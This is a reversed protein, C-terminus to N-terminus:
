NKIIKLAIPKDLYVKAFYVGTPKNEITLQAKRNIVPYMESSILQSQMNYLAIKVEKKSTPLAIEFFGNTPNPYAIIESILDIKETFLGECEVNTKVAVLDGQSVDISMLSAQTEFVVEGNVFVKYPPSGQSIEIAVKNDTVVAKGAIITGAEILVTFCQEFTKDEDEVYVGICFNYTGPALNSIIIGSTFNYLIGNIITSYNYEKQANIVIQGNALNPCTEGITEIEFNNEPFKFCGLADVSNGSITNPCQDIINAVGDNDDDISAKPIGCIELSWSDISGTDADGSDVVKLTWHGQSDTNNLYSLPIQPRFTGTFPAIGDAISISGLDDFITNTYNNSSGGNGASLLISIGKPSALELTLDGAYTHAINVIVKVNTILKNDTISIISEAGDSNNDPIEKPMDTANYTSCIENATTFNFPLSYNSVGGCTNKSVVRWYYKTNVALLQPEFLNSSVTAEETIVTFAADTAIQINYSEANVDTEWALSYPKVFVLTNDVPATLIPTTLTSEFVDLSLTKTKELSTTGSIGIINFAYNGATISNFESITVEINTNGTTASVPNFSVTTGTPNGSASFTVEEDFGLFTNYTFNYVASNPKCVNSNDDAFNMTFEKAQISFNFDNLAYFINGVSEVKIRAKTSTVNPVDISAIGNNPINSKLIIPFTFGGDISLLINVNTCNVPANNTNAVDWTITKPEGSNWEEFLNQSTVNFPGANGEFTIVMEQSASQGGNVNNDRVNVGFKMTRSVSPLREWTNSIGGTSVTNLNPFYRKSSINPSVSRFVPGETATSVPPAITLENDLQEWTYTLVDTSNPDTATANLVFPTSVPLTYSSLAEVIPANNGTTTKEACTSNGNTINNWMEQVSVLHFYDDSQSQVNEPACLGAYAMITSGSGPEVATANNVNGDACSGKESNFTHNAGFQHGMEHAVFDIDYTDGIPFSSGTIGKAKSPTCPSNLTALGGGGTSFTHGIDYNGFGINEDIVTQSQNILASGDDNTLGDTVPDLFIVATNNAVLEMTLSADREFIANVRTMTANIASLVVEKKETVTANLSVGNYILQFQSYEGTTAVALRFTRLLGDDANTLKASLSSVAKKSATNAEDVLCKFPETAPVDSKSYVIYSQKNSTYPDIYVAGDKSQMIMAHLGIKSVSFRIITEPNEVSKGIYSRIDPYKEQLSKELISAEFVEYNELIGEANPFSLIATSKASKGKRKPTNQLKQKLNDVDLNFVQFENPVSRREIKDISNIESNARKKWIDDAKQASLNFVM